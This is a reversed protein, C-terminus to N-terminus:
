IAQSAAQSVAEEPAWVWNAVAFGAQQPDVGPLSDAASLPLNGVAALAIRAIALSKATSDLFQRRNMSYGEFDAIHMLSLAERSQLATPERVKSDMSLRKLASM